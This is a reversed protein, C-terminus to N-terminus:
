KYNSLVRFLGELTFPKTIYDDMGSDMYKAADDILAYASVGVIYTRNGTGEKFEVTRIQRTVEDGNMDPLQIDMFISDYNGHQSMKLASEGDAAVDPVVDLKRLMKLLVQQNIKNDEVILIKKDKLKLRLQEVPVSKLTTKFVAVEDSPVFQARFSVAASTGRGPTSDIVLQGGMAQALRSVIPLGIGSGEKLHRSSECRFFPKDLLPIESKDIGIGTDVFTVTVKVESSDKFQQEKRAQVHVEIGGEDTFKVANSMLNVMMQRVRAIDAKIWLDKSIDMHGPPIDKVVSVDLEKEQIKLRFIQIVDQVTKFLDFVSEQLLVNGYLEKESDIKVMQLVDDVLVLLDQGCRIINNLLHKQEADLDSDYLLSSMGIIGNLPTRIEHSLSAFLNNRARTAYQEQKIAHQMAETAQDLQRRMVVAETIDTLLGVYLTDDTNTLAKQGLSIEFWKSDSNPCVAFMLCWSSPYQSKLQWQIQILQLDVHFFTIWGYGCLESLPSQLSNILADNGALLELNDNFVFMPQPYCNILMDMELPHEVEAISYCFQNMDQLNAIYMLQLILWRRGDLSLLKVRQALESNLCKLPLVRLSNLADNNRTAYDQLLYHFPKLHLIDGPRYLCLVDDKLVALGM